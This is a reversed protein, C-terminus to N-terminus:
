PRSSPADSTPDDPGPMGFAQRFFGLIEAHMHRINAPSSPVHGEGRYVVLRVPRNLRWLASYMAEAQALAPERDGHLMLLPTEIRDARFLPSARVYRQPDTWPPGGMAGQSTETWGQQFQFSDGHRPAGRFWPSFEGWMAALNSPASAAVIADFLDTQTAIELGAWGGFSHGFYGLRDADIVDPYQGIAADVVATLQAALEPGPEAPYFDRPLGPKLVAFGASAFLQTQGIPIWAAPDSPPRVDPGDLTYGGPGPYTLAVLPAPGAVGKAPWLWSVLPEGGPGTHRVPLPESFAIDALDRNLTALDRRDAEPGVLALSVQAGAREVELRWEPTAALVSGRVAGRPETRPDGGNGGPHLAAMGGATTRVVLPGRTPRPNWRLRQADWIDLTTLARVGTSGPIKRREGARLSWAADDSLVVLADGWQAELTRPVSKFDGTLLRPGAAELRYWDSRGRSDEAALVVPSGANWSARVTTLSTIIDAGPDPRLGALPWRTVADGGDLSVLGDDAPAGTEDVTHVLLRDDDSWSMLGAVVPTHGLPRSVAGDRRNILSITRRAPRDAPHLAAGPARDFREGAEMVAVVDGSPSLTMDWVRGSWLVRATQDEASLDLEVVRAVPKSPADRDYPPVGWALATPSEGRAMDAWAAATSARAEPEWTFHYPLEGDLRDVLILTDDDAWIATEGFVPVDPRVPLDRIAGSAVDLVSAGFRRGTLTWVLLRRGSPSWPGALCGTGRNGCVQRPAGDGDVPAVMLRRAIWPTLPGRDFPAATTWPGQHEFVLHRGSPDISARGFSEAALMHEISWLRDERGAPEANVQAPWVAAWAAALLVAVLRTM